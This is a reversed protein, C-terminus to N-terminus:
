YHGSARPGGRREQRQRAREQARQAAAEARELELYAAQWAIPQRALEWAPVGAYRAARILHV